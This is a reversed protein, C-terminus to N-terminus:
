PHVWDLRIRIASGDTAPPWVRFQWAAQLTARAFGSGAPAEAIERCNAVRETGRMYCKIMGWGSIQKGLSARPYFPLLEEQTPGTRWNVDTILESDVVKNQTSPPGVLGKTFPAYRTLDSRVQPALSFLEVPGRLFTNGTPRDFSSQNGGGNSVPADGSQRVPLSANRSLSPRAQTLKATRLPAQDEIRYPSALNFSVVAARVVRAHSQSKVVLSCTLIATMLVALIASLSRSGVHWADIRLDVLASPVQIPRRVRDSHADVLVATPRARLSPVRMQCKWRGFRREAFCRAPQLVLGTGHIGDWAARSIRKAASLPDALGLGRYPTGPRSATDFWDQDQPPLSRNITWTSSGSLDLASQKKSVLIPDANAKKQFAASSRHHLRTAFIADGITWGPVNSQMAAVSGASGCDKAYRPCHNRWRGPSM